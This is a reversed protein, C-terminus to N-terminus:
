VKGGVPADKQGAGAQISVNLSVLVVLSAHAVKNVPVFFALELDVYLLDERKLFSPLGVLKDLRTFSSSLQQECKILILTLWPKARNRYDFVDALGTQRLNKYFYTEM